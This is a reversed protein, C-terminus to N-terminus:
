DEEDEDDGSSSGIPYDSEAMRQHEFSGMRGWQWIPPVLLAVFAFVYPLLFPVDRWLHFAYQVPVKSDSEPEVRLYYRGAPLRPLRVRGAQQGETWAGDSDIGSYFELSPAVNYATGTDANIIALDWGIWANAITSTMRVDLNGDASMTFPDTVFAADAQATPPAPTFQYSASFIQERDATIYRGVAIGALALALLLFVRTVSRARGTYPNPQNAFVGTPEPPEGDVSFARWLARPDTYEGLSWTQEDGTGEGSLLQTEHVFDDVAVTDGVRVRWPFEGLVYDTRASAHQFHEYQRREYPIRARPHSRDVEVLDRVTRIDNWHGNYESLYRYGRYPNFLVYERWSYSVGEVEISRQQFGVVTYPQDHWTGNAGLPILPTIRQRKAADQVIRLNPDAPDLITACSSCAVTRTHSLARLEVPAGCNGCNFGRTTSVAPDDVARVDKLALDDYEVFRGTFVLPPAETYDITAFRGGSARLDVFQIEGKGWYEFPLEGDVGRYRARTRTTVVFAQGGLGLSTGVIVKDPLPLESTHATLRSVAYEAQADSLWGSSQDAFVLHWENWSGDDYDYAIRGVVTFSTGDFTGRTGIQIPSSDPRLDSVEGIAKLDVDHRVVVSRCSGCVTQVASSWRFAIPASCNPCSGM